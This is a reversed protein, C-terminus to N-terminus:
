RCSAAQMVANLALRRAQVPTPMPVHDAETASTVTGTNSNGSYDIQTGTGSYDFLLKTDTVNCDALTATRLAELQSSNLARAIIGGRAIRGRFPANTSRQLNGVYCVATGEDTPTGSGDDTTSYGSVEAVAGSLSGVYMHAEPSAADDYTVAVFHWTNLAIQGGTCVFLTPTPRVILFTQNGEAGGNTVAWLWGRPSTADKTVLHQNNGDSTRYVWLWVTMVGGTPINDLTAGSGHDVRRASGASDFNLAM